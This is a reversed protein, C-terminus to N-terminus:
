KDYKEFMIALNTFNFILKLEAVDIKTKKLLKKFKEINIFSNLKKNHFIFDQFKKSNIKFIQSIDCYFGIKNSSNLVKNPVNNKLSDRLISKSLSNKMLYESPISNVAEYLKHSLFPYRSEISHYMAIQDMSFLHSPVNEEFLCRSLENRFFDKYYNKKEFKKNDLSFNLYHSILSKEHWTANQDENIKKYYGDFDKLIPSRIIPKINREWNKYAEDFFNKNKISVLYNLHDIYNGAFLEDGGVGSLVVRYNNKKIEQCLRHFAFSSLSNLPSGGDIVVKKLENLSDNFDLRVYEHKAKLSNLNEEILDTEDYNKNQPKYSYYHLDRNLISKSIGSIASSDIGGSLLCTIPYDSRLRIKTCEVLKSKVLEVAEEYNLKNNIKSNPIWFRKPKAIFKSSIEIYSAGPFNYIGTFFTEPDSSFAKFGFSLFSKIKSENLKFKKGILAFLHNINSAFYFNDGDIHYFLPKISFRDRSIIINGSNKNYYSFAWDGDLLELAKKGFLNLMKLLVETDSETRFNVGESLCLEKLELYNYIEGSFSLIGDNDEMPQKSRPNPDIISLRAQLFVFSKKGEAYLYKDASDPGRRDKMLTLCSNLNKQSPINKKSGVFGAIACM